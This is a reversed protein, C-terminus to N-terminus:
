HRLEELPLDLLDYKEKDVDDFHWWETRITTFGAETMAKKLAERHGKADHALDPYDAQATETFDDHDTPMPVDTGNLDTLTIDVAAGRNHNSGKRPDAVFDPNPVIDWMKYQISRPRYCDWVKLRFGQSKLAKAAEVLRQATKERL